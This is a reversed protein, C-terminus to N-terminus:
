RNPKYSQGPTVDYPAPRTNRSFLNFNFLNPAYQKRMQNLGSLVNVALFALGVPNGITLCTWGVLSFATPLLTDQLIRDRRTFLDEYFGEKYLTARTCNRNSCQDILDMEAKAYQYLGRAFNIGSSIALGYYMTAVSGTVLANYSHYLLQLCSGAILLDDVLRGPTYFSPDSGLGIRDAARDLLLVLGLASQAMGWYPMAATIAPSYGLDLANAANNAVIAAGGLRGTILGTRAAFTIMKTRLSM